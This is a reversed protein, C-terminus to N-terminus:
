TGEELVSNGKTCKKNTEKLGDSKTQETPLRYHKRGRNCTGKISPKNCAHSIRSSVKSNKEVAGSSEGIEPLPTKSANISVIKMRKAGHRVVATEECLTNMKALNSTTKLKKSTYTFTNLRPSELTHGVYGINSKNPRHRDITKLFPKAEGESNITCIIADNEVDNACQKKLTRRTPPIQRPKKSGKIRKMATYLAAGRRLLCKKVLNSESKIANKAGMVADNLKTELEKLICTNQATAGESDQLHFVCMYTARIACIDKEYM